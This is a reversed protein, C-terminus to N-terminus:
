HVAVPVVKLESIVRLIPEINVALTQRMQVSLTIIYGSDKTLLAWLWTQTREPRNFYVGLYGRDVGFGSAESGSLKRRSVPLRNTGLKAERDKAAEIIAESCNRCASIDFRALGDQTEFTGGENTLASLLRWGGLPASLGLDALTLVKSSKASKDGETVPPEKPQAEVTPVETKTVQAETPRFVTIATVTSADGVAYTVGLKNWTYRNEERVDPVGHQELIRSIPDGLRFGTDTRVRREEDDSYRIRIVEFRSERYAGFIELQFGGGEYRYYLDSRHSPAGLRRHMRKVEDFVTIAGEFGLGEVLRRSELATAYPSRAEAGFGIGMLLCLILLAKIWVRLSSQRYTAIM